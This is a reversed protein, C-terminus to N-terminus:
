APRLGEYLLEADARRISEILKRKPMDSSGDIGLKRAMAQLDAENYKQWLDWEFLAVAHRMKAIVDVDFACREMCSGCEICASPKVPLAAYMGKLWDQVGWFAWNVISIISTIKIGQECPLCHNCYVCHGALDRHVNSLAPQFDKEEASANFYRLAARMEDANKVGAAVTSVPLSLTYSLCQTATISTPKGDVNLLLGASYPKMAVLGVGQATCAEYLAQHQADGHQTLNVGFMLVDLAGSNVLKIAKSVDHASGGICGIHGKERYRNLEKISEDLWEQQRGDEGVMTMMAVDIYDNGVRSLAEPFTRRCYPLDYSPGIGWHAALVLKDRHQKLLPGLDNWIYTGDGAPDTQLVDIYNLGAEVAVALIEAMIDRQPPLHETGFGIASVEIGTKGLTRYEM